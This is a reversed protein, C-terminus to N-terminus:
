KEEESKPKRPTRKRPRGRRSAKKKSKPKEEGEPEVEGSEPAEESKEEEKEEEFLAKEAERTEEMSVETMETGDVNKRMLFYILTQLSGALSVVYSAVLIVFIWVFLSIWFVGLWETWGLTPKAIDVVKITAGTNWLSYLDGLIFTNADLGSNEYWRLPIGTIDNVIRFLSALYFCVGQWIADFKGWWVGACGRTIRIINQAFIKVVLMVLLAYVVAIINYCIWRVPQSFIYSYARSIADFADSAEAAIAPFMLQFGLVGGIAIIFIVFGALLMLPFLILALIGPGVWPIYCILGALIILFALFLIGLIPVLPSWILAQYKKCAFRAAEKMGIREDAAIEVAAIRTIAGGFFSWVVLLWFGGAFLPVVDYLKQSVKFIIGLIIAAAIGGACIYYRSKDGKERFSFYVILGAAVIIGLIILYGARDTLANVILMGVVSLVVGMFALIVKAPDLAIKFSALIDKWNGKVERM